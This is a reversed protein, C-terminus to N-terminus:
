PAIPQLPIAALSANDDTGFYALRQVPASSTVNAGTMIFRPRGPITSVQRTAGAPM